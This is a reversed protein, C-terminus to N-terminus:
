SAKSAATVASSVKEPIAPGRWASWLTAVAAAATEIRLIAPGLTVNNAGASALLELEEETLGGEPGIVITTDRAGDGSASEPGFEDVLRHAGAPDAVLLRQEKLEGLASEFLQGASVAPIWARRSQKCAELATRTLKDASEEDPQAVSRAFKVLTIRDAGLETCKEILWSLRPGKPAACLLTLKPKPADHAQVEILEVRIEASGKGKKSRGGAADGSGTPAPGLLRGGATRGRGNFVTVLEGPRLRLSGTAHAGEEASLTAIPPEITECFFWPGTM